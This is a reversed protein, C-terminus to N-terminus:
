VAVNFIMQKKNKKLEQYSTIAVSIILITGIFLQNWSSTLGIFILTSNLLYIIFIGLIVGFIKGKGGSISVGGIVAGAIVMLEDGVMKDPYVANVQCVYIVGAIGALLGMYGYSIIRLKLTNYGIRKAAEESNGLAVIGRGTKTKYILFYTCLVVGIVFLVSSSLGVNGAVTKIHFITSSGFKSYSLPLRGGGFTKAGIFTAMVGHFLNQTGLTIIFPPLRLWTVLLANVIGLVLGIAMSIIFALPISSLGLTILIKTATYSGFLAISMFSIDIGGSLMIVLLGMSLIMVVSSSRIIDFQTDINFFRPNIIGVFGSYIAIIILLAIETNSLFGLKNKM